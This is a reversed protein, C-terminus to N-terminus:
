HKDKKGVLSDLWDAKDRAWQIYELLRARRDPEIEKNNVQQELGM